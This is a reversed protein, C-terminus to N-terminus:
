DGRTPPSPLRSGTSGPRTSGAAAVAEEPTRAATVTLQRLDRRAMRTLVDGPGAEILLEAGLEVIRAMSEVWRVPSVVHVRLSALLDDPDTTPEATVNQVVPISAPRVQLRDLAADIPARASEMLPSHFAGAVNPRIARCKRDRAIAEAREIAAPEGALVTQMQSNQNAVVLVEVGAAEACVEAAQEPTLGVLALMTGPRAQGAEAMALSRERVVDLVAAFDVAGAAVLAAYEGLSHGAVAVPAVGEAALVRYAAVDATLVAQQTTETRELASPDRCLEALDAGLVAAAEEIVVRSAPHELWPDLMGVSQSGQGPFVVAVNM